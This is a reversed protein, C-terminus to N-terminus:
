EGTGENAIQRLLAAVHLSSEVSDDLEFALEPAYRLRLTRGLHGRFFGAASQLGKLAEEALGTGAPSTFRVRAHRLDASLEVATITVQQLRPDKVERLLLQGLERRILDGVRDARRYPLPM